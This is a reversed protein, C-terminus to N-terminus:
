EVRRSHRAAAALADEPHREPHPYFPARKLFLLLAQWYIATVVKLSMWPHAILTRAMAWRTLEVRHCALTADFVSKGERRNEMRVALRRGPPAFRWDNEHDLPLFPSVHFTKGFHFRLGERADLVNM